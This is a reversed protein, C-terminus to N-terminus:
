GVSKEREEKEKNFKNHADDIMILFQLSISGAIYIMHSLHFQEKIKSEQTEVDMNNKKFIM